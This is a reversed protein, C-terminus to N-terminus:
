TLIYGIKPLKQSYKSFTRLQKKGDSMNGACTIRKKKKKSMNKEGPFPAFYTLKPPSQDKQPREAAHTLCWIYFFLTTKVLFVGLFAVFFDFYLDSVTLPEYLCLRGSKHSLPLVVKAVM